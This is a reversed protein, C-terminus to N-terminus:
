WPRRRGEQFFFSASPVTADSLNKAVTRSITSKGTGAMGRLWFICKGNPDEIWTHIDFLVGVRTNPHCSPDHENAQADFAAGKAVPLTVLDITRNIELIEDAKRSIDPLQDTQRHIDLGAVRGVRKGEREGGAQELHPLEGVHLEGAGRSEFRQDRLAAM